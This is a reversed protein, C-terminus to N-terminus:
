AFLGALDKEFDLMSGAVRYGDVKYSGDNVASKLEAVRSEDVEPEDRLKEALKRLKKASDTLVVSDSAAASLSAAAAQASAGARRKGGQWDGQGPGAKHREKGCQQSIKRSHRKGAYARGGSFLRRFIELDAGQFCPSRPRKRNM